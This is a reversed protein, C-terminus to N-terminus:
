SGGDPNHMLVAPQADGVAGAVTEAPVPLGLILWAGLVQMGASRCKLEDILSM